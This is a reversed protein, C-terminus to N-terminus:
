LAVASGLALRAQLGNEIDIAWDGGLFCTYGAGMDSTDLRAKEQEGAAIHQGEAYFQLAETLERVRDSQRRAASELAQWLQANKLPGAECAFGMEELAKFLAGREDTPALVQPAELILCGTQDKTM